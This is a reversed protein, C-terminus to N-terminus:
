LGSSTYVFRPRFNLDRLVRTLEKQWNQAVSRTGYMSKWLKWRKGHSNSTRVEQCVEVFTPETAPAYMYARSVDVLMLRKRTDGSAADSITM